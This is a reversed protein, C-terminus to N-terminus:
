PEQRRRDRPSERHSGSATLLTAEEESLRRWEGIPLDGLDFSGIRTRILEVVDHGVTAFMKRVQRKQGERLVVEHWTTGDRGSGLQRVTAPRTMRGGRITVGERLVNLSAEDPIGTVRAHYTKPTGHSPDKLQHILAGDDTLILLGSTDRDLRGAPALREDLEALYHYVTVRGAPDSRTTVVGTPKHFAVVIRTVDHQAVVPGM